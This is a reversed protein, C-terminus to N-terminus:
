KRVHRMFEQELAEYMADTVEAKLARNLLKKKKVIDFAERSRCVYAGRGSAKGTPDVKVEGEPTRVIRLMDRKDYMEQTAICKRQPTKRSKM